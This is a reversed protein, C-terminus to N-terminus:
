GMAAQARWRPHPSRLRAADPMLDLITARAAQINGRIILLTARRMEREVEVDPPQRSTTDLYRQADDLRGAASLACALGWLAPAPSFAEAAHHQEIAETLKDEAVLVDALQILAYNRLPHPISAVKRYAAEACAYDHLSM